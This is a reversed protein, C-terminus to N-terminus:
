AKPEPKPPPLPSKYEVFERTIKGDAATCNFYGKEKSKDHNDRRYACCRNTTLVVGDVTRETLAHYHGSFVAQLNFPRLRDLLSDANTPRYKVGAGLPFHTLVITPKVKNLRPLYDDLWRFTALQIDTKEYRQGESSDLGIIQWGRHLFYYNIRLPHQRTYAKRDTQALYDHNGIVPYFPVGLGRFLDNVAGHHHREGKDTLDGAHLCFEPQGEKMQRVAGELYTSCEPSTHHTDNVVVFRFSGSNGKGKAALAGPWLGLALLTGASLKELASRRSVKKAFSESVASPQNNWM